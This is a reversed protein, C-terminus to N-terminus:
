FFVGTFSRRARRRWGSCTCTSDDAGVAKSKDAKALAAVFSGWGMAVALGRGEDWPPVEAGHWVHALMRRATAVHAEGTTMSEAGYRRAEERVAAAGRLPEAKKDPM